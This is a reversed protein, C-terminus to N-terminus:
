SHATLGAPAAQGAPGGRLVLLALGPLALWALRPDLLWEARTSGVLLADYALHLLIAPVLCRTRLTLGALCAGVFATPVLRYISAHAAGFLLAQLAMVRGASLDRRMGSLLAGRFLLEECVAPSVAFVFLLAAPSLGDLSLAAAGGRAFASPLPAWHEQLSSLGQTLWALAPALLVAGLATRASPLHLWLARRLSEGARRAVPRVALLALVPFLVWLTIMLGGVAHWSQLCGGILYTVAIAALGHALATRSQVRREAQEEEGGEHHLIREADLTRALHRLVWWAWGCSAVAMWAAVGPALSGRIADRVGLCAGLMPVAATLADLELGTGGAIGAPVLLLISLPLLVQQGERFSRARASNLALLACVLLVTPLFVVASVCLRPAAPLIAGDAGAVMGPLTGLGFALSALVSGVNSALAALALVVVALYKGWALILAPVPQVLLTELTGGEREGAFTSLAGYAGGAVLVLVALLPLARGLAAGNSADESAVDVVAPVLAAAPDRGVAGVLTATRHDAEVRALARRVRILAESSLDDSSDHHARLVTRAPLVPDPVACLILDYGHDLARAVLEREAPGAEAGTERPGQSLERLRETVSELGAVGAPVVRIPVEAALAATVASALEGNAARLDVVVRVMAAETGAGTTAQLHGYARFLLPYLLAPLLIASVLARHDRALRRLEVAAVTLVLGLSTRPRPGREAM